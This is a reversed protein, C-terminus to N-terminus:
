YFGLLDQFREEALTLHAADGPNGEPCVRSLGEEFRPWSDQSGSAVQFNCDNRVHNKHKQNQFCSRTYLLHGM